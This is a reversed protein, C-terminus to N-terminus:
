RPVPLDVRGGIGHALAPDASALFAGGLAAVVV